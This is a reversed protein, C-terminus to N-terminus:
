LTVRSIIQVLSKVIIPSWPLVCVAKHLLLLLVVHLGRSDKYMVYRVVVVAFVGPAVVAPADTKSFSTYRAVAHPTISASFRKLASLLLEASNKAVPNPTSPISPTSLHHIRYLSPPHQRSVFPATGELTKATRYLYSTTEPGTGTSAADQRFLQGPSRTGSARYLPFLSDSTSSNTQPVKM